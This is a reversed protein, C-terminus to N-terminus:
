QLVDNSETTDCSHNKYMIKSDLVVKLINKHEKIENKFFLNEEKLQQIIEREELNKLNRIEHSVFEKLDNIGNLCNQLAMFENSELVDGRLLSNNLISSKISLNDDFFNEEGDNIDVTKIAFEIDNNECFRYCNVM